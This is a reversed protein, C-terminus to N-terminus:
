FVTNVNNFCFSEGRLGIIYLFDVAVDHAAASSDRVVYTVARLCGSQADRGRCVPLSFDVAVACAAAYRYDCFCCGSSCCCCCNHM